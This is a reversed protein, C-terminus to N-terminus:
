ESKLERIRVRRFAVSKADGQLAIFGANPRDNLKVEDLNTNIVTEGNFVLEVHRGRVTITYRNWEGPPKCMNKTPGIGHVLGGCDHEGPAPVGLSDRIQIEFGYRPPNKENPMRMVVGSNGQPELKFELDLVFDAYSRETMLYDLRHSGDEPPHWAVTQDLGMVWTSVQQTSKWGTLDKGNFMAVFGPAGAAPHEANLTSSGIALSAILLLLQPSLPAPFCRLVRSAPKATTQNDSLRM